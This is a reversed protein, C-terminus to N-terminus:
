ESELARNIDRLALFSLVAGILELALFWYILQRPSGGSFAIGHLRGFGFGALALGLAVLGARFWAPRRACISLFLGFGIQFGGYTAVFDARATPTPIPIDVLRGMPLPWLLAALGVAIFGIAGLWLLLTPFRM